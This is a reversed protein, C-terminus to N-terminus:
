KLGLLRSDFQMMECCVYVGVFIIIDFLKGMWSSRHRFFYFFFMVNMLVCIFGSFWVCFLVEDWVVLMWVYVFVWWIQLSRHRNPVINLTLDELVIVFHFFLFFKFIKLSAWFFNLIRLWFHSEWVWYGIAKKSILGRCILNFFNVFQGYILYALLDYILGLM